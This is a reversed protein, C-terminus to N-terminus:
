LGYRDQHEPCFEMGVGVAYGCGSIRCMEIEYAAADLRDRLVRAADLDLTIQFAPYTLAATQVTYTQLYKGAVQDSWDDARALIAALDAIIAPALPALDIMVTVQERDVIREVEPTTAEALSVPVPRKTLM